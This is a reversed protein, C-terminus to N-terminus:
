VSLLSLKEIFCKSFILIGANRWTLQPAIFPNPLLGLGTGLRLLSLAVGPPETNLPACVPQM